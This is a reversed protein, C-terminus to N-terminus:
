GQQRLFHFSARKNGAEDFVVADDDTRQVPYLGVVANASLWKEAIAKDLMENAEDYVKKAEAGVIPDSFIKPFKGSLMWTSFFPTWDIYKRIINLDLNKLVTRGLKKPVVPVFSSWDIAVPNAKAEQYS